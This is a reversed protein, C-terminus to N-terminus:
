LYFKKKVVKPLGEYTKEISPIVVNRIHNRQFSYDQNTEDHVIFKELNNKKIWNIFVKKRNKLFPRHVTFSEWESREPIPIYEPTGVLCNMLYSEVADDLHHALVISPNNPISGFFSLRANRLSDETSTSSGAPFDDLSGTILKLNFTDCFKSVREQMDDNQPRQKHNFHLITFDYKMTMLFHAAAISDEGGSVAVHLNKTLNNKDFIIKHDNM